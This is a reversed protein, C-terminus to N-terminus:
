NLTISLLIPMTFSRMRPRVSVNSRCYWFEHNSSYTFCQYSGHIGNRLQRASRKWGSM